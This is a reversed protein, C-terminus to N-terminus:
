FPAKEVPEKSVKAIIQWMAGRKTKVKAGTWHLLIFHGKKSKLANIAGTGSIGVCDGKAVPKTFPVKNDDRGAYQVGPITSTAICSFWMREKGTNDTWPIVDKLIGAFTTTKPSVEGTKNNIRPVMLFGVPRIFDPSLDVLEVGQLMLSADFEFEEDDIDEEELQGPEEQFDSDNEIVDNSENAAMKATKDKKSM